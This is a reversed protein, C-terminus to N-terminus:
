LAAGCYKCHRADTSHGDRGCSPCAQTSVEDRRTAQALEVSVIGTPVAIVGYGMIMLVSALVQGGTTAPAIDGYGVTTMTVIAWYVSRPISTFGSEAGEVIYMLAGVILVSTLVAGLFVIIKRLSARLASALLDAEYLFHGLKLVRFIRLLRLARIVLLSQAGAFALSAYTPAISLLDVVGFFSAAYRLPRDVCILRLVYEVTFAITFVWEAVRLADGYQSRIDAVSELMVVVVSAVIFLLLWVDFARGGPTDAEFIVEHLTNRWAAREPRDMATLM